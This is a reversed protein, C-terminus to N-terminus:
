INELIMESLDASLSVRGGAGPRGDGHLLGRGGSRDNGDGSLWSGDKDQHDLLIAVLKPYYARFYKDGMQFMAQPCYYVEYFFYDSSWRPPHKLLYEAGAVAEAPRTSAASRWPSSAPAPGRTTRGAAPSTASGAATPSPAASSTPSPATSTARRPRRLRGVQRRAPGHGALRHRQPRQRPQDAPLALRRRTEPNKALDQAKLILEVARALATAADRRGPGPRRGHRRGRRADPHQDRPLVDPRPQHELRAPRQAAPPRLVYRVGREIAERYPGPEGPVHGAALFAMVALSTVSTARGFGGSEWAGDPKQSSKLFELARGIAADTALRRPMRGRGIAEAPSPDASPWPRDPRPWPRPRVGRCPRPWVPGAPCSGRTSTREHRVPGGAGAAIERFYLQILRAYDDRYRGQTM